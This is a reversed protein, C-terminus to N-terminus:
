IIQNSINIEFMYVCTHLLMYAYVYLVTEYFIIIGCKQVPDVYEFLLSFFHAFMILSCSLAYSRYVGPMIWAGEEEKYRASIMNKYQIKFQNISTCQKLEVNMSNWLRVGCVSVWFSKRTTWSRCTKFNCKGRLDQRGEGGSFLKLINGPQTKNQAKYMIQATHNGVLDTIKSWKPQLFLSNTQELYGVKHIIRIARKQLIFLSHLSSKYNNGWVEVCYNLYPWVLSCYLIHLSKQDLVQKAKYLM